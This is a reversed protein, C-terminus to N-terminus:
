ADPTVGVALPFRDSWWIRCRDTEDYAAGLLLDVDAPRVDLVVGAGELLEALRSRMPAAYREDTDRAEAEAVVALDQVVDRAEAFPSPGPLGSDWRNEEALWRARLRQCREVDTPGLGGRELKQTLRSPSRGLGACASAIKARTVTKKALARAEATADDIGLRLDRREARLDSTAAVAVVARIAEFRDSVVKARLDDRKPLEAEITLSRLFEAAEEDSDAGIKGAILKAVEDTREGAAAEAVASAEKPGAKLGGNTQLRCKAAKGVRKWRDFLHKLGGSEILTALTWAGQSPERHKVSVLESEDTRRVIYDEEWECIIEIVSADRLMGVCAMATLSVQFDYRALTESGADDEPTNALVDDVTV